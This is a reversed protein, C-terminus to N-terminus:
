ERCLTATSAERLATPTIGFARRFHHSLHSGNAYGVAAAIQKVSMVSTLLLRHAERTRAQHLRAEFGGGSDASLSRSLHWPSLGSRNAVVRLSLQPDAFDKEIERIALRVSHSLM